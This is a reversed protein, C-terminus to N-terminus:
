IIYLIIYLRQAYLVGFNFMNPSISKSGTEVDLSSQERKLQSLPPPPFSVLLYRFFTPFYRNRISIMINWVRTPVTVSDYVHSFSMDRPAFIARPRPVLRRGLSYTSVRHLARIIPRLFFTRIRALAYINPTYYNLYRYAISLVNSAATETVRRVSYFLVQM